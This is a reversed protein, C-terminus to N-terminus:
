TAGPIGSGVGPRTGRWRQGLCETYRGGHHVRWRTTRHRGCETACSPGARSWVARSRPPPCAGTLTQFIRAIRPRTHPSDRKTQDRNLKTYWSISLNLEIRTSDDLRIVLLTTVDGFESDSAVRTEGAKFPAVTPWGLLNQQTIKPAFEAQNNTKYWPPPTLTPVPCTKLICIQAALSQFYLM